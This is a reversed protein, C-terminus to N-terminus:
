PRRQVGKVPQFPREDDDDDDDDDEDGDDSGGESHAGDGSGGTHSGDGSGGDASVGASGPNFQKLYKLIMSKKKDDVNALSMVSEKTWNKDQTRAVGGDVGMFINTRKAPPKSVCESFCHCKFLNKTNKIKKYDAYPWELAMFVIDGPNDRFPLSVHAFKLKDNESIMDSGKIHAGAILTNHRYIFDANDVVEAGKNGLSAPVFKFWPKKACTTNAFFGGNGIGPRMGLRDVTCVLNSIKKADGYGRGYKRYLEFAYTDTTSLDIPRIEGTLPLMVTFEPILIKNMNAEVLDRPIGVLINYNLIGYQVAYLKFAPKQWVYCNRYWSFLLSTNLDEERINHFLVRRELTLALRLMKKYYPDTKYLCANTGVMRGAEGMESPTAEDPTVCRSNHYHLSTPIMWPLERAGDVVWIVDDVTLNKKAAGGLFEAKYATRRAQLATREGPTMAEMELIIREIDEYTITPALERGVFLKWVWPDCKSMQMACATTGPPHKFHKRRFHFYFLEHLMQYKKTLDEIEAADTVFIEDAFNNEYDAGLVSRPCELQAKSLFKKLTGSDKAIKMVVALDEKGREDFAGKPPRRRKAQM